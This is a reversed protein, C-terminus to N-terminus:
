SRSHLNAALLGLTADALISSLTLMDRTAESARPRAPQGTSPDIGRKGGEGQVCKVRQGSNQEGDGHEAEVEEAVRQVALEVRV